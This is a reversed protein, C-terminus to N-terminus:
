SIVRELSQAELALLTTEIGVHQTTHGFFVCWMKTGLTKSLRPNSSTSLRRQKCSSKGRWVEREKGQLGLLWLDGGTM